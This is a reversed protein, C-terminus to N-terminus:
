SHGRIGVLIEDELISIAIKLAEESKLLRRIDMIFWVQTRQKNMKKAELLKYSPSSGNKFLRCFAPGYQELFLRSVEVGFINEM